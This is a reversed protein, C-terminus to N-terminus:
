AVAKLFSKKKKEKVAYIDAHGVPAQEPFKIPAEAFIL